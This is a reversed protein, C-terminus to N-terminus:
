LAELDLEVRLIERQWGDEHVPWGQISHPGDCTQRARNNDHVVRRCAIEAPLPPPVCGPVNSRRFYLVGNDFISVIVPPPMELMRRAILEHSATRYRGKLWLLDWACGAGDAAFWGAPLLLRRALHNAVQERADSPAERADVGLIAFARHAVHEGIEHAVAWQRREPRPEPRTLITAQSRGGHHGRLRVYRGRGQQRDDWAITIGLTRAISLADVPPRDVAAAALVEAVVGELAASFEERTIEALM